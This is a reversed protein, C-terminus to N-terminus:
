GRIRVSCPRAHPSSGCACQCLLCSTESRHQEQQKIEFLFLSISHEVALSLLLILVWWCSILALALCLGKSCKRLPCPSIGCVPFLNRMGPSIAKELQLIVDLVVHLLLHRLHLLVRHLVLRRHHYLYAGVQQVLCGLLRPLQCVHFGLYTVPCLAM